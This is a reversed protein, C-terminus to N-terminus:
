IGRRDPARRLNPQKLLPKLMLHLTASNIHLGFCQHLMSGFHIYEHPASASQLAEPEPVRRGDSMASAFAAIVTAGQPIKTARSTGQALTWDKLVIRPLGPALPDFRM